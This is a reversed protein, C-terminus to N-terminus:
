RYTKRAVFRGAGALGAVPEGGEVVRRGRLYVERPSAPCRLGEYPTYDCRQHMTAASITLERSPDWVVLDADSGPTAVGKSPWCGFLKAPGECLLSCMREPSIRGTAVGKAWMVLARHEVGPMGNPIRSFDDRGLTKQGRYDFDCHDTSVLDVRGDEVAEWLSEVSARDRMPPSCVFKAAEFGGDGAAEYCGEDLALYQPCTEARVWTGLERAHGVEALGEKTSLHVVYIRAGAMRALACFRAVAEAECANPRSAPHFCPAAKGEALLDRTRADVVDGNECHAAVVIGQAACARLLEYLDGDGIRLNDYALYTKVSSVGACAIEPLEPAVAPNWDTIGMHFGYDCAARGDAKGHWVELAEALTQGREQTIFDIVTTTGGALAAVTGTAFDDSTHRAGEGMDLHTHGDIFGPFVLCGSCDRVEDEERAVGEGVAVVREGEIRVDAAFIGASSVVSGGSLVVGM